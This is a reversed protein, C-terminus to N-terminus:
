LMHVLESGTEPPRRHRPGRFAWLHSWVAGLNPHWQSFHKRKSLRIIPLASNQPPLNKGLKRCHRSFLPRDVACISSHTTEPLGISELSQLRGSRETVRFEAFIEEIFLTHHVDGCAAFVLFYDERCTTISRV